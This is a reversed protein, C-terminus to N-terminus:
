RSYRFSLSLAYLAISSVAINEATLTLGVSGFAYVLIAPIFVKFYRYTAQETTM